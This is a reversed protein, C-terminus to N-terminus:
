DSMQTWSQSGLSQIRGPEETWPIIWTLVNTHTTMEGGPSKGLGPISGADGANVRQNKVM